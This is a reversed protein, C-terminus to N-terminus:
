PFLGPGTADDILAAVLDPHQAHLDHDGVIWRTLSWPLASGAHAVEDRKGAMWRQNNPDEAPLVLVPVAVSPYCASPRHEWLHRLITLHNTRALWPRITGDPLIEVNAMSGAIGEEPWDPHNARMMREFAAARTGILHPPAMAAECSPWDPFRNVLETTGGDVLVLGAAADPHRVALELVVNAGWSQGAVWPRNDGLWDLDLLLALLDQTLTAFDFGSDPKDSQGHGRQDVAVVPHGAAALRQAVGDWLRANSALGHVLLVPPGPGDLGRTLINLTIGTATPVRRTTAATPPATM